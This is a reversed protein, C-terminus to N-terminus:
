AHSSRLFKEIREWAVLRFPKTRPDRLPIVWTITAESNSQVLPYSLITEGYPHTCLKFTLWGCATQIRSEKTHAVVQASSAFRRSGAAQLALRQRRQGDFRLTYTEIAWHM